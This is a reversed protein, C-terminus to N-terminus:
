LAGFSTLPTSFGTKPNFTSLIKKKSKTYISEYFTAPLGFEDNGRLPQTTILLFAMLDTMGASAPIWFKNFISSETDDSRKCPIVYSCNHCLRPLPFGPFEVVEPGGGERPHRSQLNKVSADTYFLFFIFSLLYFCAPSFISPTM